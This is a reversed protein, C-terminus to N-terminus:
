NYKIQFSQETPIMSALDIDLVVVLATKCMHIRTHDMDATAVLTGRVTIRPLEVGM